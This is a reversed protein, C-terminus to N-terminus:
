SMWRPWAYLERSGSGWWAYLHWGGGGAQGALQAGYHVLIVGPLVPVAVAAELRPFPASLPIAERQVFWKYANVSRNSLSTLVAPVGLAGTAVWSFVVASGVILRLKRPSRFAGGHSSQAVATRPPAKSRLTVIWATLAGGLGLVLWSLIGAAVDALPFYSRYAWDHFARFALIAAHLGVAGLIFAVATRLRFWDMLHKVEPAICPERM